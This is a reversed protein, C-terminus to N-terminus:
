FGASNQRQLPEFQLPTSEDEYLYWNWSFQVSNLIFFVKKKTFEPTTVKLFTWTLHSSARRQFHFLLVLHVSSSASCDKGKNLMTWRPEIMMTATASGAAIECSLSHLYMPMDTYHLKSVKIDNFVNAELNRIRVIHCTLLDASLHSHFHSRRMLLIQPWLIM